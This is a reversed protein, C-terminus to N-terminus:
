LRTLRRANARVRRRVPVAGALMAQWPSLWAAGWALSLDRGLRLNADILSQGVSAAAEMVAWPKEVTMRLGERRGRASPRVLEMALLQLRSAVVLPAFVGITALDSLDHRKPM